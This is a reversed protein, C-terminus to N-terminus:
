SADAHWAVCSWGDTCVLELETHPWVVITVCDVWTSPTMCPFLGCRIVFGFDACKVFCSSLCISPVVEDVCTTGVPSLQLEFLEVSDLRCVCCDCAVWCDATEVCVAAGCDCPATAPWDPEAEGVVACAVGAVPPTSPAVAFRLVGLGCCRPPTSPATVFTAPDVSGNV